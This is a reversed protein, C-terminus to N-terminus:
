CIASDFIPSLRSRTNTAHFGLRAGRPCFMKAPNRMLGCKCLRRYQLAGSISRALSIVHHALEPCRRVQAASPAAIRPVRMPRTFTTLNRKKQLDPRDAIGILGTSHEGGSGHAAV